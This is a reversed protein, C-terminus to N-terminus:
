WGEFEAEARVADEISREVDAILQALWRRTGRRQSQALYEEALQRRQVLHASRTGAWADPYVFRMAAKATFTDDPDANLLRDLVPDVAGSFDVHDLLSSWDARDIGAVIQEAVLDSSTDSALRSLLAISRLGYSPGYPNEPDRTALMDVVARVTEDPLARAVADFRKLLHENPHDRSKRLIRLLMPLEESAALDLARLVQARYLDGMISVEGGISVDVLNVGLVRLDGSLENGPEELWQNLIGLAPEIGDRATALAGLLAVMAAPSLPRTWAGYLFMGLRSPESYGNDVAAVSLHLRSDTAPLKHVAGIVFSGLRSDGLWRALTEDAWEPSRAKALGAFAGILASGLPPDASEVVDLLAADGAVSGVEEFLIQATIEDAARAADICARLSEVPSAALEEAVTRLKRAGESDPDSSFTWPKMNLVYALRDTLNSGVLSQELRGLEDVQVPPVQPLRRALAIASGLAARAAATWTVTPLDRVIAPILGRTSAGPLIGAIVNAVRDREGEWSNAIEILLEWAATRASVEDAGTAPRWEKPEPEGAYRQVNRWEHISLAVGLANILYPLRKLAGDKQLVGRAWDLRGEFSLGTGGLYVRFSAEVAGAAANRGPEDDSEVAFALLLDAASSYLDPHWLIAQLAWVILQRGTVFGRITEPDSAGVVRTIAWLTASPHVFSAVHILRAASEDVDALTGDLFPGSTLLYGFVRQVDPDPGFARMQSIVASQLSEPLEDLQAAFRDSRRAIFARALWLAFLRPTVRRSQGAASVLRNLERDCVARLRGADVDFAMAAAELESSLHADFGLREFLALMGLLEEEDVNPVLKELIAQVGEVQFRHALLDHDGGYRIADALESALQPYGEALNAVFDAQREDLGRSLAIKRSVSRDLPLVELFRLDTNTGRNPREGISIARIRGQGREVHKTLRRRLDLDCDDVVLLLHSEPSQAVDALLQWDLTEADAAVLVRETIGEIQLAEYVVRSKGVGTDGVVNLVPSRQADGSVHTRVTEILSQRLDDPHFEIAEFDSARGWGAISYLGRLATPFHRGLVGLHKWLWREIQNATLLTVKAGPRIEEIADQFERQKEDFGDGVADYTWFLAYDYGSAIRDILDARKEPNFETAASPATQRSKIQWVHPGAPVLLGDLPPFESLGDIGGDRAKVRASVTFCELSLGHVGAESRLLDRALEVAEEEDVGSLWKPIELNTM